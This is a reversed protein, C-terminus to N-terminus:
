GNLLERKFSAPHMAILCTEKASSLKEFPKMVNSQQILGYRFVEMRNESRIIQAEKEGAIELLKVDLAAEIKDITDFTFNEKGKVWKSVQQQSVDLALALDKQSKGQARLTRLIKLAVKQSREIWGRNELRFKAEELWKNSPQAIENIIALMEEKTKKM